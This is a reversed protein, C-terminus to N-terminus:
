LVTKLDQYFKYNQREYGYIPNTLDFPVREGDVVVCAYIHRPANKERGVITTYMKNGFGITHLSALSLVTFCDCDGFGNSQNILTQATQIYEIGAPDKKYHVNDKLFYFLSEPDSIHSPIFEACFDLSNQAQEKVYLLTKTLGPYPIDLFPKPRNM